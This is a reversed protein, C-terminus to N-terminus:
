SDIENYVLSNEQDEPLWIGHDPSMRLEVRSGTHDRERKREGRGGKEKEERRM